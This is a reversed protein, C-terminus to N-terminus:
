EPFRDGQIFYSHVIIEIGGRPKFVGEVKMSKPNCALVLDDRIKNVISEMFSGVNRFSFFYLKLSKSEICMKNPTYKVTITGFDPQGTKPCLSTFEPFVLEVSYDRDPTRNPFVELIKVDPGEYSYETMGSGLSKLHDVKDISM